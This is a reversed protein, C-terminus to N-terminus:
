HVHPQYMCGKQHLGGAETPVEGPLDKGEEKKIAVIVNALNGKDDAVVTQEPVPDTHKAACEKVGSMDIEKQEPAKGDLNVKGTIDASALGGFASLALAALAILDSSCVDSSWDGQLRTHRRRSSFFFFVICLYHALM